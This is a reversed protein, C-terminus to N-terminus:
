SFDTVVDQVQSFLVRIDPNKVKYEGRLQKVVLESDM